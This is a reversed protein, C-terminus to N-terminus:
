RGVRVVRLYRAYSRGSTLEKPRPRSNFWSRGIWIPAHCTAAQVVTARRLDAGAAHLAELFRAGLRMHPDPVFSTPSRRVGNSRKHLAIALQKANPRVFLVRRHECPALVLV